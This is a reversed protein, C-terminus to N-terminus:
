EGDGSSSDIVGAAQDDTLNYTSKIHQIVASRPAGADIAKRAQSGMDTVQAPTLNRVKGPKTTNMVKDKHELGVNFRRNTNDEGLQFRKDAAHQTYQTREKAGQSGIQAAQVHAAAGISAAQIHAMATTAANQLSVRDHNSAIIIKDSEAQAALRDSNSWHEREARKQIEDALEKRVALAAADEDNAQQTYATAMALAKKSAESHTPGYFTAVGRYYDAIQRSTLPKGNNKPMAPPTLGVGNDVDAQADQKKERGEKYTIDGTQANQYAMQSAALAANQRDLADQRAKEAAAQKAQQQGQLVGGAAGLGAAFPDQMQWPM